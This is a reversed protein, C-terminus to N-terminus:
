GEEFLARPVPLTAPLHGIRRKRPQLVARSGASSPCDFGSRENRVRAERQGKAPSLNSGTQCSMKCVPRWGRPMGRGCREFHLLFVERSAERRGSPVPLGATPIRGRARLPLAPHSARSPVAPMTSQGSCPDLRLGAEGAMPASATRSALLAHSIGGPASLYALAVSAPALLTVPQEAGQLYRLSGLLLGWFFALSGHVPSDEWGVWGEACGTNRGFRGQSVRPGCLRLLGAKRQGAVWRGEGRLRPLVWGLM